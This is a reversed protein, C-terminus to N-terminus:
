SIRDDHPRRLVQQIALAIASEVANNMEQFQWESLHIGKDITNCVYCPPLNNLTLCAVDDLFSQSLPEEANESMKWLHDIVLREYYNSVNLM